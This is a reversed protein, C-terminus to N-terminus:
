RDLPSRQDALVRRVEAIDADIQQRLAELTPFRHEDRLRRVFEVTIAQGYLDLDVDLLHAEVAVIGQGFTPRTGVNVAAPYSRGGASAYAAYVGRGPVLKEPPFRVNATPVGLQRGRGDGAVVEGRVSYWRGLWEAATQVDGARLRERIASSSIIANGDRVPPIVTVGIGREAGWDELFQPTGERNLGFAHTSSAYVRALPMHAALLDLWARARMARVRPEFPVVVLVDIGTREFLAVREELTSLLFPERPPAVVAVPHPDFTVVVAQGGMQRSAALLADLIARHGRHVGDFTGLALAVPGRGAPFSQVGRVVIM